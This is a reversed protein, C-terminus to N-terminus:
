MDTIKAMERFKRSQKLLEEYTGQGIIRGKELIYIQDCDKLTNLRHAIMIVTRAEAAHHIAKLVAEETAGDLSSTAEDLVLIEPNRYLARALGIRQRQGGSLRIGREGIITNYKNPLENEVFTDLAALQAAFKVQKDDIDKNPLGFAINKRITDDSLYIEQPVYGIKQQWSPINKQTIPTDDVIIQGSQPTLLGLIIDVLTTKGCGTAGAFGIFNNKPITLNINSIIDFSSDTYCFRIDQLKIAKEFNIAKKIPKSPVSSQKKPQIEIMDEYIKDVIATNYYVRTLANFFRHLSPMMRYAAFAFLSLLPIFDVVSEGKAIM